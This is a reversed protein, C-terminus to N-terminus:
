IRMSGTLNVFKVRELLVIEEVCGCQEVRNHFVVLHFSRQDDIGSLQFLLKIGLVIFCPLVVRCHSLKIGGPCSVGVRADDDDVEVCVFQQFGLRTHRSGVYQVVLYLGEPLGEFLVLLPFSLADDEDVSLAFSHEPLCEDM